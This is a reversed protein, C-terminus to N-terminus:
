GESESDMSIGTNQVDTAQRGYTVIMKQQMRVESRRDCAGGIVVLLSVRMAIMAWCSMSFMSRTIATKLGVSAM